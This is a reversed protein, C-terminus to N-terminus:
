NYNILIAELLVHSSDFKSLLRLETEEDILGFKFLFQTEAMTSIIKLNAKSIFQFASQTCNLSLMLLSMDLKQIAPKITLYNLATLWPNNMSQILLSTELLSLKVEAINYGLPLDLIKAKVLTFHSYVIYLLQHFPYSINFEIRNFLEAIDIIIESIQLSAESIMQFIISLVTLNNELTEIAKNLFFDANIVRHTTFNQLHGTFNNIAYAKMTKLEFKIYQLMGIPSAIIKVKLELTASVCPDFKSTINLSTLGNLDEIQPILPVNISIQIIQLANPSLSIESYELNTFNSLLSDNNSLSLIFTDNINGLNRIYITSNKSYGMFIELYTPQIYTEIAAFPLITTNISFTSFIELAEITFVEGNLCYIGPATEAFRPPNIMISFNQNQGPFISLPLGILSYWESSFGTIDRIDFHTLNNGLNKVNFSVNISNGPAISIKTPFYKLELEYYPLVNVSFTQSDTKNYNEIHIYLNFLYEKAFSSWNKPVNIQILISIEELIQLTMSELPTIWSMFPEDSFTFSLNEAINGYNTINVKYISLSTNIPVYLMLTTIKYSLDVFPKIQVEFDIEDYLDGASTSNIIFEIFYERPQISYDRIVDIAVTIIRLENSVLIISTTNLSWGTTLNPIIFEYLEETNGFNKISINLLFPSGPEIQDNILDVVSYFEYYPLIELEFQYSKILSLNYASQITINCLYIGPNSSYVRPIDILLSFNEKKGDMLFVQPPIKIWNLPITGEFSLNYFDYTNGLNGIELLYLATEGPVISQNFPIIRATFNYHAVKITYNLIVYKQPRFTSSIKIQFTYENNTLLNPDSARITFNGITDELQELFITTSQFDTVFESPFSLLEAQFTSNLNGTNTATYFYTTNLIGSAPNIVIPDPYNVADIQISNILNYKALLVAEYYNLISTNHTISYINWFSGNLNEMYFQVKTYNHTNQANYLTSNWYDLEIFHTLSIPLITQNHIDKCIFSKANFAEQRLLSTYSKIKFIFNLIEEANLTNNLFGQIMTANVKDIVNEEIFDKSNYNYTQNAPVDPLNIARNTEDDVPKLKQQIEPTIGYKKLHEATQNATLDDILVGEDPTNILANILLDNCYMDAQETYNLLVQSQLEIYTENKDEEAGRMRLFTTRSANLYGFLDSLLEVKQKSYAAFSNNIFMMEFPYPTPQAIKTYNKDPDFLALLTIFALIGGQIVAAIINSIFYPMLQPAFIAATFPFFILFAEIGTVIGYTLIDLWAGLRIDSIAKWFEDVFIELRVSDWGNTYDARAHNNHTIIPVYYNGFDDYVLFDFDLTEVIKTYGTTSYWIWGVYDTIRWDKFYFNTTISSDTTNPNLQHIESLATLDLSKTELVRENMYVLIWIAMLGIKLGLDIFFGLTKPVKSAESVTKYMNRWTKFTSVKWTEPKILTEPGWKLNLFNGLFGGILAIVIATSDGLGLGEYIKDVSKQKVVVSYNLAVTKAGNNLTVTLNEYGNDPGSSFDVHIEPPDELNISKVKQFTGDPLILPTDYTVYESTGDFDYSIGFRVYYTGILDLYLPFSQIYEGGAVLLPYNIEIPLQFNFIDDKSFYILLQVNTCIKGGYNKLQVSFTFNEHPESRFLELQVFEIRPDGIASIIKLSTTNAVVGRNDTLISDITSGDIFIRFSTINAKFLVDSQNFPIVPVTTVNFRGNSINLITYNYIILNQSTLRCSNATTESAVLVQVRIDQLRIDTYNMKDTIKINLDPNLGVITSRRSLILEITPLKWNRLYQLSDSITLSKYVPDTLIIGGM